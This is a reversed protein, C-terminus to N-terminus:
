GDSEETEAKAKVFCLRGLTPEPLAEKSPFYHVGSTLTIMGLDGTGLQLKEGAIKGNIKSDTVAGDALKETTIAGDAISNDGIVGEALKEATIAGDAINAGTVAGDALKEATIAGDALKVATIAGDAINTGTVAGAANSMAGINQRAQEKKEASVTQEGYSVVDFMGNHYMAEGLTMERWQAPHMEGATSKVVECRFIHDGMSVVEGWEYVKTSDFPPAIVAANAAGRICQWKYDSYHIAAYPDHNTCFGIWDAPDDQMDRDSQPLSKAYKIHVYGNLSELWEDMTGEFGRKVALGYATIYHSPTNM